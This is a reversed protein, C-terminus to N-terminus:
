VGFAVFKNALSKRWRNIHVCRAIKEGIVAIHCNQFSTIFDVLRIPKAKSAIRLLLSLFDQSRACKAFALSNLRRYRVHWIDAIKYASRPSRRFDGLTDSAKFSGILTDGTVCHYLTGVHFYFIFIYCDCWFDLGRVSPQLYFTLICLLSHCVFPLRKVKQKLHTTILTCRRQM